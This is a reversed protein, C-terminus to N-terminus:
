GAELDVFLRYEHCDFLCQSDDRVHVKLRIGNSGIWDDAKVGVAASSM